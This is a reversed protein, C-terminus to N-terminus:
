SSTRASKARRTPASGSSIAIVVEAEAASSLRTLASFGSAARLRM